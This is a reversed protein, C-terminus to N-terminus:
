WSEPASMRGSFKALVALERVLLQVAGVVTRVSPRPRGEGGLLLVLLKECAQGGGLHLLFLEPLRRSFVRFFVHNPVFSWTDHLTKGKCRAALMADEEFHMKKSWCKPTKSTVLALGFSKCSPWPQRPSTSIKTGKLKTLNIFMKFGGTETEINWFRRAPRILSRVHSRFVVVTSNLANNRGCLCAVISDIRFVVAVWGGSRRVRVVRPQMASLLLLSSGLSRVHLHGWLPPHWM